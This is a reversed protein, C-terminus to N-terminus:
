ECDKYEIYYTADWNSNAPKVFFIDGVEESTYSLDKGSIFSKKSTCKHSRKYIRTLWQYAVAHSCGPKELICEPQFDGGYM